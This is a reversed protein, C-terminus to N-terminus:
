AMTATLLSEIQLLSACSTAFRGQTSDLEVFAARAEVGEEEDVGGEEEEPALTKRAVMM